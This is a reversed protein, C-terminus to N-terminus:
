LDPYRRSRNFRPGGGQDGIRSKCKPVRFSQANNYFTAQFCCFEVCHHACAPALRFETGSADHRGRQPRGLREILDGSRMPPKTSSSALRSNRRVNSRIQNEIESPDRVSCFHAKTIPMIAASKWLIRVSTAGARGNKLTAELAETIPPSAAFVEAFTPSFSMM